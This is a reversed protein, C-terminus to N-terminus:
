QCHNIISSVRAISGLHVDVEGGFELLEDALLDRGPEVVVMLKFSDDKDKAKNVFEQIRSEDGIEGLM